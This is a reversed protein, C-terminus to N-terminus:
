PSHEGDTSRPTRNRLAELALRAYHAAKLDGTKEIDELGVDLVAYRLRRSSGPSHDNRMRDAFDAEGIRLWDAPRINAPM